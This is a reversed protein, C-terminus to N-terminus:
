TEIKPSLLNIGSIQFTSLLYLNANQIKPDSATRDSHWNTSHVACRLSITAICNKVTLFIRFAHIILIYAIQEKYLTLSSKICVCVEVADIHVKRVNM